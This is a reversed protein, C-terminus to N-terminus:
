ILNFITVQIYSKESGKCDLTCCLDRLSSLPVANGLNLASGFVREKLLIKECVSGLM